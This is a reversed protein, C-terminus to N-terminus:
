AKKAPLELGLGHLIIGSIATETEDFFAPDELGTGTVASVQAAFDAYHQTTAWIMFLLHVPSVKGIKGEKIWHEIVDAKEAVIKKLDQELAQKIQPAGQMVENAFLRSADPTKASMELKQRIYFRLELAPDGDRDLTRLPNLWGDLIQDMVAAYVADKSSFYYLLNSKSMGAAKSIQEITAGAYGFRSFEGLAADLIRARNKEQIRSMGAKATGTQTTM